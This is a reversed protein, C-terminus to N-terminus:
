VKPFWNDISELKGIYIYNLEVNNIPAFIHLFENIYFRGGEYGKHKHLMMCIDRVIEPSQFKSLQVRRKVQPRPEYEYRVDKAGATLVYPIGVHPGKWEDGPSIPTGDLNIADGSILNNEFVFQLPINYEGALYYKNDVTTPVIVQKYENIYFAGGPLGAVNNKIKNVMEVLNSHKENVPYWLEGDNSKYVIGIVYEGDYFKVTYKTDKLVSKPCNGEYITLEPIIYGWDNQGQDNIDIKDLHESLPEVLMSEGIEGTLNMEMEDMLSNTYETLHLENAITDMDDTTFTYGTHIYKLKRILTDGTLVDFWPKTNAAVQGDVYISGRKFYSWCGIKVIDDHDIRPFHNERITNLKNVLDFRKHKLKQFLNCDLPVEMDNDTVVTWTGNEDGIINGKIAKLELIVPGNKTLILCDIESNALLFNTFIYVPKELDSDRVLEYIEKLQNAEHEFKSKESFFMKVDMYKVESKIM